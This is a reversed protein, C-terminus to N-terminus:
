ERAPPFGSPRVPPGHPKSAPPSSLIRVQPPHLGVCAKWAHGNLREPVEGRNFIQSSNQYPNFRESCYPPSPPIRVRSGPQGLYRNEFGASEVM